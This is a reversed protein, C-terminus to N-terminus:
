APEEQEVAPIQNARIRDVIHGAMTGATEGLAMGRNALFSAAGIRLLMPYTSNLLIPSAAGIGILGGALSAGNGMLIQTASNPDVETLVRPMHGTQETAASLGRGLRRSVNAALYSGLLGAAFRGAPNKIGLKTALNAAPLFAAAGIGDSSLDIINDIPRALAQKELSNKSWLKRLNGKIYSVLIRSPGKGGAVNLILKADPDMITRYVTPQNDSM